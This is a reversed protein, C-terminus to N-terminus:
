ADKSGARDKPRMGLKKLHYNMCRSSIGLTKAAVDQRHWSQSYAQQVLIRAATTLLDEEPQRIAELAQILDFPFAGENTYAGRLAEHARDIPDFPPM